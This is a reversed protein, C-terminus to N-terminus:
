SFLLLPTAQKMSAEQALSIQVLGGLLSCLATVVVLLNRSKVVKVKALIGTVVTYCIKASIERMNCAGILVM